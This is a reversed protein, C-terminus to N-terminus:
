LLFRCICSSISFVVQQEWVFSTGSHVQGGTSATLLFRQQQMFSLHIMSNPGKCHCLLRVRWISSFWIVGPGPDCLVFAVAMSIQLFSWKPPYPVYGSYKWILKWDTHIIWDNIFRSCSTWCAAALNNLFLSVIAWIKAERWHNGILYRISKM